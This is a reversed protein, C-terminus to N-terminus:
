LANILLPSYIRLVKSKYKDYEIEAESADSEHKISKRQYTTILELVPLEKPVKRRTVLDIPKEEHM